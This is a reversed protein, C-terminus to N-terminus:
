FFHLFIDLECRLPAFAISSLSVAFSLFLPCMLDCVPQGGAGSLISLPQHHAHFPPTIVSSSQTLLRLSSILDRAKDGWEAGEVLSCWQGRSFLCLTHTDTHTHSIQYESLVFPNQHLSFAQSVYVQLSHYIFGLPPLHTCSVLISQGNVFPIACTIKRNGKLRRVWLQVCELVIDQM